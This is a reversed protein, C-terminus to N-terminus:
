ANKFNRVRRLGHKVAADFAEIREWQSSSDFGRVVVGLVDRSLGQIVFVTPTAGDKIPIHKTDGSQVYKDWDFAENEKDLAGDMSAIYEIQSDLKKQLM